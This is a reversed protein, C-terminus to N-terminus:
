EDENSILSLRRTAEHVRSRDPRAYRATTRIDTHGLKAQALALNGHDVFRRAVMHRVAHPGFRKELGAAVSLRKFVGSIAEPRMPQGYSTKHVPSLNVFVHDHNPRIVADLWDRWLGLYRATAEAFEAPRRGTKGEVTASCSALDVGRWVLSAAEGCRCATDGIFALLAINRPNGTTEYEATATGLLERFAAEGIARDRFGPLNRPRKIHSAFDFTTYGRTHCFKTFTKLDGIYSAITAPSYVGRRAQSGIHLTRPRRLANLWRDIHAPTVEEIHHVRRLVPSNRWRNLRERYNKQTAATGGRAAVALLFADIANDILM